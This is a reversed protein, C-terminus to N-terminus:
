NDTTPHSTSIPEFNEVVEDPKKDDSTADPTVQESTSSKPQPAAIGLLEAAQQRFPSLQEHHPGNKDMWEAAKDYWKRGEVIHKLQHHAMALFFWDYADGGNRLDVSKKLSEIAANWDEAQYQAVGLTNWLNGDTPAIAVGREAVEVAIRALRPQSGVETALSWSLSNLSNPDPPCLKASMALDAEAKDWQKQQAYFRGRARWCNWREPDIEIAKSLDSEALQFEGIAQYAQGRYIWSAPLSNNLEIARSYAAVAMKGQGLQEHLFGRYHWNEWDESDVSAIKAATARLEGIAATDGKAKEVRTLNFLTQVVPTPADSYNRRFIALAERFCDEAEDLKYQDKLAVALTGLGYATEPHNEGHLKRHLEVAERALQEGRVLDTTSAALWHLVNALQPYRDPNRDAISRIEEVIQELERYMDPVQWIAIALAELVKVAQDDPLRLKRHIAVAERAAAEARKADELEKLYWAYDALSDAVEPSVSGFLKRRLDLAAELHSGAKDFKELRRYSNGITAHLAAEVEPRDQFQDKLGASIEDLLQRVTYDTGRAKDPNASQLAEQLLDSIATAKEAEAVAIRAQYRAQVFGITALTAGAVLALVVALGAVVTVKNRRVFKKLRYSASPPCAQVPEDRLYRDVDRALGGASEYRRNRDKELCKM